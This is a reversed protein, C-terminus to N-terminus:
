FNGMARGDRRDGLDELIPQSVSVSLARVSGDCLAFQCIGPHWSGFRTTILGAGLTSPHGDTPGRSLGRNMIRYSHNQAFFDMGFVSGDECRSSGTGSGIGTSTSMGFNLCELHVHKEGILATNSTGDLIDRLNNGRKFLELMGRWSGTPARDPDTPSIVPRLAGLSYITWPSIVDAAVKGPRPQDVTVSAYDSTTCGPIGVPMTAVTELPHANASMINKGNRRTPCFYGPIHIAQMGPRNVVNPNTAPADYSVAVDFLDYEAEREMHPLLYVFWTFHRTTAQGNVPSLNTGNYNFTPPLASHVDHFNQVALAFQKLNNSCQSRRGAERAAQVAPLLLAILIGIIAIVVLLEVLTFGGRRPSRSMPASRSM